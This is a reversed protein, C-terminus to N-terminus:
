SEDEIGEDRMADWWPRAAPAMGSVLMDLQRKVEHLSLAGVAQTVEEATAGWALFPSEIHGTVEPQEGGWRVFLLYGGVPRAREGTEDTEIAVTYSRGDAGEFAAPRSHVAMYGGLTKEDGRSHDPPEHRAM